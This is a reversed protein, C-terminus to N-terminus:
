PLVVVADGPPIPDPALLVATTIAAVGGAAVGGGVAAWFGWRQVLPRQEVLEDGQVRLSLGGGEPISLTQEIVEEGRELRVKVRGKEYPGAQIRAGTGALFGNLYLKADATGTTVTLTGGKEPLTVRVEGRRGDSTDTSRFVTAYGDLQLSVMHLGSTIEELRLPTVGRDQGDLLVTAGPPTSEVVFIGRSSLMQAQIFYNKGKVTTLEGELPEFLPAEVRYRHTGPPLDRLRLPLAGKPQGDVFIQAGAPGAFETTGVGPLLNAQVETTRDAVVDVKRVYPDYNDAVVRLQHSGVTVLSTLPANGVLSGDLYVEAGNVSAKVKLLGTAPDEAHAVFLLLFSLAMPLYPVGM